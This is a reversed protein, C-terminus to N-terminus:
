DRLVTGADGAKVSQRETQSSQDRDRNIIKFWWDSKDFFVQTDLEM